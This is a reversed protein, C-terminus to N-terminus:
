KELVGKSYTKSDVNIKKEWFILPMKGDSTIAGFVMLSKHHVSRQAIRGHRSAEVPSGAIM